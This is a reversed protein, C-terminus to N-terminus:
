DEGDTLFRPTGASTQGPTAWMTLVRYSVNDSRIGAPGFVQSAQPPLRGRWALQGDVWADLTDGVIQAYIWHQSGATLAPLRAEYSATLKSYGRAGCQAHTRSGPNIKTSVEIQSRPDLRWMVYVLNCGDMARLKVGIQRRIGGSALARTESSRGEFVFQVGVDSGATAPAVARFTPTNVLGGALLAGRTVCLSSVTATM